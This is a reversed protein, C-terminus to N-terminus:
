GCGRYYMCPIYVKFSLSIDAGNQILINVIHRHGEQSAVYLPTAGDQSLFLYLILAGYCPRKGVNNAQNIDAGNKLLVDVVDSHGEQCATYLPSAGTQLLTSLFCM